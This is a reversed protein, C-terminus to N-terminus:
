ASAVAIRRPRGGKSGNNRAARQKAESRVSGGKRGLEAMWRRNGYVGEILAPVYLDVDLTPFSIGTGRGLIEYQQLETDSADELGQIDEVPLALRRQNKLTILLLRLSAIYRVSEALAGEPLSAAQHLASEIEADTTIVEHDAM